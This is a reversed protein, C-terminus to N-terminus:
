PRRSGRGAPAAAASQKTQELFLMVFAAAQRMASDLVRTAELFVDASLADTIPVLKVFGINKLPKTLVYDLQARSFELKMELNLRDQQADTLKNLEAAENVLDLNVIMTLYSPLAKTRKTTVNVRNKLITVISFFADKDEPLLPGTSHGFTKSWKDIDLGLTAMDRTILPRRQISMLGVLLVFIVISITLYPWGRLLTTMREWGRDQLWQPITKDTFLPWLFGVVGILGWAVSVVWAAIKLWPPPEPIQFM